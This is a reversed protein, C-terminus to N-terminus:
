QLPPEATNILPMRYTSRDFEASSQSTETGFSSFTAVDSTMTAWLKATVRTQRTHEMGTVAGLIMGVKSTSLKGDETIVTSFQGGGSCMQAGFGQNIDVKKTSLKGVVLFIPPTLTSIQSQSQLNQKSHLM